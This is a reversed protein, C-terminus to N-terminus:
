EKSPSNGRGRGRGRGATDGGATPAKISSSFKPGTIGRRPDLQNSGLFRNSEKNRKQMKQWKLIIETKLKLSEAKRASFKQRQLIQSKMKGLPMNSPLRKMLEEDDSSSPMESDESSTSDYMNLKLRRKKLQFISPDVSGSEKLKDPQIVDTM